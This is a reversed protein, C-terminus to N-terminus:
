TNLRGILDRAVTPEGILDLDDLSVRGYLALLISSASGRIAVDGKAHVAEVQGDPQILWEGPTDTCHIHISGPLAADEKVSWPMTASLFEDISDSAVEADIPDPPLEAVANQIDWRHVAAEQVQHRRTFGATHDSEDLAWTWAPTEDPTTELIRIMRDTQSRGWAILERYDDPLAPSEQGLNAPDSARLEVVTGWFWHVRGLHRVLDAINWDPCSPVMIEPDAQAATAYFLDSDRRIAALFDM